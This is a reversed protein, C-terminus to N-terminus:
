LLGGVTGIRLWTFGSWVGGGCCIESLGMKIRDVWRHKPREFPRQGAPEGVLIRYTNRGEGIRPLVASVIFLYSGLEYPELTRHLKRRYYNKIVQIIFKAQHVIYACNIISTKETSIGALKRKVKMIHQASFM